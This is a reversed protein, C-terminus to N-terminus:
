FGRAKTSYIFIHLGNDGPLEIMRDHVLSQGSMPDFLDAFESSSAPPIYRETLSVHITGPIVAPRPLPTSQGCAPINGAAATLGQTSLRKTQEQYDPVLITSSFVKRTFYNDREGPM